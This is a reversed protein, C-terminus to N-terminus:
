VDIRQLCSVPACTSSAYGLLRECRDSGSSLWQSLVASGTTPRTAPRLSYRLVCCTTLRNTDSKKVPQQGLRDHDVLSGRWATLRKRSPFDIPDDTSTLPEPAKKRWIFWVSCFARTKQPRTRRAFRRPSEPSPLQGGLPATQCALKDVTAAGAVAQAVAKAAIQVM